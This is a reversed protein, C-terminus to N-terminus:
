NNPMFIIDHVNSGSKPLQGTTVSEITSQQANTTTENAALIRANKYLSDSLAYKLLSNPQSSKIGHHNFTVPPSGGTILRMKIIPQIYNPDTNPLIHVGALVGSIIAGHLGLFSSMIEMNNCFIRNPLVGPIKLLEKFNTGQTIIHKPANLGGGIMSGKIGKIGSITLEKVQKEVINKNLYETFGVAIVIRVDNFEYIFVTFPMETQSDRLKKLLGFVSLNHKDLEVLLITYLLVFRTNSTTRHVENYISSLYIVKQCARRFVPSHCLQLDKFQKEAINKSLMKLSSLSVSEDFFVFTKVDTLPQAGGILPNLENEDIVIEPKKHANLRSQIPETATADSVKEGIVTGFPFQNNICNTAITKFYLAGYTSDFEIAAAPPFISFIYYLLLQLQLKMKEGSTEFAGFMDMLKLMYGFYESETFKKGTMNSGYLAIHTKIAGISSSHSWPMLQRKQLNFIDINKISTTIKIFNDRCKTYLEFLENHKIDNKTLNKTNLENLNVYVCKAPNLGMFGFPKDLFMHKFMLAMNKNIQVGDMALKINKLFMGTPRVAVSKTLFAANIEGCQNFQEDYSSSQCIGSDRFGCSKVPDNEGILASVRCRGNGINTRPIFGHTVTIGGAGIYRGIQSPGTNMKGSAMLKLINVHEVNVPKQALPGLPELIIEEKKLNDCYANLVKQDPAASSIYVALRTNEGFTTCNMQEAEMLTKLRIKILERSAVVMDYANKESVANLISASLGLIQFVKLGVMRCTNIKNLVYDPSWFWFMSHFIKGIAQETLNGTVYVGKEITIDEDEYFLSSDAFMATIVDGGNYSKNHKDIISIKGKCNMFLSYFEKKTLYKVFDGLLSLGIVSEAGISIDVGPQKTDSYNNILGNILYTSIDNCQLRNKNINLEDGDFDGSFAVQQSTHIGLGTDLDDLVCAVMACISKSGKVPHRTATLVDGNRMPFCAVDGISLRFTKNIQTSFTKGNRKILINIGNETEAQLIKNLRVINMNTVRQPTCLNRSHESTVGLENFFLSNNATAILRSINTTVKTQTSHKVEGTKGGLRDTLTAKGEPITKPNNKLFYESICEQQFVKSQDSRSNGKVSEVIKNIITTDNNVQIRNKSTSLVNERYRVPPVVFIQSFLFEFTIKNPFQDRVVDLLKSRSKCQKLYTWISDGTQLTTKKGDNIILTMSYMDPKLVKVKDILCEKCQEGTIVGKCNVCISKVLTIVTKVFEPKIYKPMNEIIGFHGPCKEYPKQCAFCNVKDGYNHKQRSDSSLLGLYPSNPTGLRDKIQAGTPVPDIVKTLQCGSFFADDELELKTEHTASFWKEAIRTM